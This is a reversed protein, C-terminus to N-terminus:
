VPPPGFTLIENQCGGPYVVFSISCNQCNPITSMTIVFFQTEPPCISFHLCNQGAAPNRVEIPNGGPDATWVLRIWGGPCIEWNWGGPKIIVHLTAQLRSRPDEFGLSTDLGPHQFISKRCIAKFIYIKYCFRLGYDIYHILYLTLSGRKNQVELSVDIFLDLFVVVHRNAEGASM